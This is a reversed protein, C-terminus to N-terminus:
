RKKKRKKPREPRAAGVTAAAVAVVIGLFVPGPVGGRGGEGRKAKHFAEQFIEEPQAGRIVQSGIYTTPLGEFGVKKVTAIEQDVRADTAPNAMCRDYKKADLGLEVILRRNAVPTIDVAEFIADAVADGKGQEGGCIAAKAAPRANRHFTLPMNLRVFHVQGPYEGMIRKLMPHLRRCFPCEFDAFEVVNIKGPEYLALIEPPVAPKPKLPPWVLPAAIALGGLVIWSWVKLPEPSEGEEKQSAHRYGLACGAMLLASGDTVLCLWCFHKMYAMYGIFIAALTAGLLAVPLMAKRRLDPVLTIGLLCSFAALGVAPLPIGLGWLNALHSQRVQDCASGPACFGAGLEYQALLAGAAALATLTLLRLLVIWHLSRM